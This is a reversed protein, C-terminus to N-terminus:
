PAAPDGPDTESTSAPDTELEVVVESEPVAADATNFEEASIEHAKQAHVLDTAMSPSLCLMSGVGLIQGAWRVPRDLKVYMQDNM